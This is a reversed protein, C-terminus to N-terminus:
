AVAPSKGNALVCTAAIAKLYFAFAEMVFLSVQLQCSKQEHAAACRSHSTAALANHFDTSMQAATRAPAILNDARLCLQAAADEISADDGNSRKTEAVLRSAEIALSGLHAEPAFQTMETGTEQALRAIPLQSLMTQLLLDLHTSKDLM